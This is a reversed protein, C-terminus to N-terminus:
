FHESVRDSNDDLHHLAYAALSKLQENWPLADHYDKEHPQVGKLLLDTAFAMLKALQEDLGLKRYGAKDELTAFKGHLRELIEKDSTQQTLDGDEDRNPIDSLASTEQLRTRVSRAQDKESRLKANRAAPRKKWAVTAQVTSQAIGTKAVVERINASPNARFQEAVRREREDRGIKEVEPPTTDDAQSPPPADLSLVRLSELVETPRMLLFENESKGRSLMFKDRFLEWYDRTIRPTNFHTRLLLSLERWEPFLGNRPDTGCESYKEGVGTKIAVDLEMMRGRVTRCELCRPLGRARDRETLEGRCHECINPTTNWLQGPTFGRDEPDRTASPDCIAAELVEAADEATLRDVYGLGVGIMWYAQRFLRQIHDRLLSATEPDFRRRGEARGIAALRGLAPRSDQAPIHSLLDGITIAPEAGGSALPTGGNAGDPAPLTRVPEPVERFAPLGPSEPHPCYVAEKDRGPRLYLEQQYGVLWRGDDTKLTVKRLRRSRSEVLRELLPERDEDPEETALRKLDPPLWTEWDGVEVPERIPDFARLRGNLDLFIPKPM